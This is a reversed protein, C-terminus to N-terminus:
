SGDISFAVSTLGSEAAPPCCPGPTATIAPTDTDTKTKTTKATATIVAITTNKTLFFCAGCLLPNEFNDIVLMSFLATATYSIITNTM